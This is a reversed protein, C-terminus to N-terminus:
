DRSGARRPHTIPRGPGDPGGHIWAVRIPERGIGRGTVELVRWGQRGERFVLLWRFQPYLAAAVKTKVKAHDRFWGGKTEILVLRGDPEIAAFDPTYFTAGGLRFKLPERWYAVLDGSARAPELVADRFSRELRNLGDAPRDAAATRAPPRIGLTRAQAATLKLPM